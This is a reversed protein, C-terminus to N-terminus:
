DLAAPDARLMLRALEAASGVEAKDMVHQRHVHVTKESIDLERAVLKNPLGQAVLRAVELERPSLRALRAKAEDRLAHRSRDEAGRRVAAAVADLLAQDKFPKQLFDCAGHKMAQVALEIDGHGTIFVIPPQAGDARLREQLELGSMTPMRIDLVLCAPAEPSGARTALFDEASAHSAVHWGVSELLFVLSRRFAADDDVVHIVAEDTPLM